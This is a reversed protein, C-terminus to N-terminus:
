CLCSGTPIHWSVLGLSYQIDQRDLDSSPSAVFKNERKLKIQYSICVDSYIKLIYSRNSDRSKRPILVNNFVSHVSAGLKKEFMNDNYQTEM